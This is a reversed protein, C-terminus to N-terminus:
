FVCIFATRLARVNNTWYNYKLYRQQKGVQASRQLRYQPPVTAGGSVPPLLLGGSPVPSSSGDMGGMGPSRTLAGWKDLRNSSGFAALNANDQQKRPDCNAYAVSRGPLTYIMSNPACGPNPIIGIFDHRTSRALLEESIQRAGGLQMRKKLVHPTSAFSSSLFFPQACRHEYFSHARCLRRVSRM